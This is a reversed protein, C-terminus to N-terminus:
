STEMEKLLRQAKETLGGGAKGRGPNELLGRRRAEALQNSVTRPSSRVEAALDLIERGSGQLEVYRAVLPLYFRDGHGRRGPRVPADSFSKLLDPDLKGLTATMHRRVFQDLSGLPLSRLRRASLRAPPPDWDNATSLLDLDTGPGVIARPDGVEFSVLHGGESYTLRFALDPQDEDRLFYAVGGAFAIRPRIFSITSSKLDIQNPSM